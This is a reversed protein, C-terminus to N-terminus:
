HCNAVGLCCIFSLEHFLYATSLSLQFFHRKYFLTYNQIQLWLICLYNLEFVYLDMRTHEDIPSNSSFEHAHICTVILSCFNTHFQRCPILLIFNLHMLWACASMKTKYLFSSPGVAQFNWKLKQDHTHRHDTHFM